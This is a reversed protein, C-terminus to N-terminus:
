IYKDTRNVIQIRSHQIKFFSPNITIFNLHINKTFNLKFKKNILKKVRIKLGLGM